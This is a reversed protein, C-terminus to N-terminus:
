GLEIQVLVVAQVPHHVHELVETRGVWRSDHVVDPLSSEEAQRGKISQYRPLSQNTTLKNYGPTFDKSSLSRQLREHNSM